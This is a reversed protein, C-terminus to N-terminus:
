GGSSIRRFTMIREPVADVSGCLRLFMRLADVSNIRERVLEMEKMFLIGIEVSESTPIELNSATEIDVHLL